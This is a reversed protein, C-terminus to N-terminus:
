IGYKGRLIMTAIDKRDALAIDEPINQGFTLYSISKDFEKCINLIDGYNNIEDIKTFIINKFPIIGFSKITERLMENKSTINLVLHIEDAHSFRILEKLQIMRKMNKPNIGPTDILVLDANRFKKAKEIFENPNYIPEFPINAIEAFAKLQEMAAIRYTDASILVVKRDYTYKYLAALKAITTTKGVGTPGIIPVYVPSGKMFRIPGSVQINNKLKLIIKDDILDNDLFDEGKLNLMLEDILQNSITPNIGGSIMTKVKNQLLKPIHPLSQYRIHNVLLDIQTGIMDLDKQMAEFQINKISSSDRNKRSVKELTKSFKPESAISNEGKKEIAATIEFAQKWDPNEPEKITKSSLIIADDGFEKKIQALASQMSRAVFKKIRM